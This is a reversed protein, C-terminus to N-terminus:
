SSNKLLRVLKFETPPDKMKLVADSVMQGVIGPATQREYLTGNQLGDRRMGAAGSQVVDKPYHVFRCRQTSWLNILQRERWFSSVHLEGVESRAFLDPGHASPLFSGERFGAFKCLNSQLLANGVKVNMSGRRLVDCTWTFGFNENLLNALDLGDPLL